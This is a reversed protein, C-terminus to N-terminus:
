RLSADFEARTVLGDSDRDMDDFSRTTAAGLLSAEARTLQCDQNGDAFLFARVADTAGAGCSLASALVGGGALATARGPAGFTAVGPALGPPAPVPASDAPFLETPIATSGANGGPTAAPATRAPVAPAVNPVQAIRRVQQAQVASATAAACLTAVLLRNLAHM